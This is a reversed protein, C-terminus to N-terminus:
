GSAPRARSAERRESPRSAAGDQGVDATGDRGHCRGFAGVGLHLRGARFGGARAREGSDADDVARRDQRPRVARHEERIETRVHDLDFGRLTVRGAAPPRRPDAVGGGPGPGGGVEQRDIAVLPAEAEVQPGLFAALDEPAQQGAAVDEDLVVPAPTKARSPKGSETSRDILGSRTWRAM